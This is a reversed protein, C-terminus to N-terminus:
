RRVGPSKLSKELSLTYESFGHSKYLDRAAGNNSLVEVRLWRAGCETAHDEAVELLRRGIGRNRFKDRVMLDTILGYVLDGDDIDESKIRALVTVYGAIDNGDDAVFIRGNHRSCRDMMEMFLSGVVESGAPMRPDLECEYDQLEILCARVAETDSQKDFNRIRIM